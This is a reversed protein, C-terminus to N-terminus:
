QQQQQQRGNRVTQQKCRPESWRRGWRRREIQRCSEFVKWNLQRQATGFNNSSNNSNSAHGSGQFRMLISIQEHAHTILLKRILLGGKGGRERERRREGKCEGASEHKPSWMHFKFPAARQEARQQVQWVWLVGGPSGEGRGELPEGPAAGGPLSCLPAAM